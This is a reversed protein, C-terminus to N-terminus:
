TDGLNLADFTKKHEIRQGDVDLTVTIDCGLSGPKTYTLVTDSKGGELPPLPPDAFFRNQVEDSDTTEVVVQGPQQTGDPGAQVEVYVPAWAGPKFLFTRGREDPLE